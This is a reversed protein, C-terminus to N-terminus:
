ERKAGCPPSVQKEWREEKVELGLISSYLELVLDSVVEQYSVLVQPVMM